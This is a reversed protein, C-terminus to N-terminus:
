TCCVTNINQSAQENILNLTETGDGNYYECSHNWNNTKIHFYIKQLAEEIIAEKEIIKEQAICLVRVEYLIDTSIAVIYFKFTWDNYNEKLENKLYWQVAKMYFCLQRLYDYKNISDEFTWINRTTKLDFITCIKNKFDFIVGDLLSKCYIKEKDCLQYEWNIHFEHYVSTVIDGNTNVTDGVPSLLSKAFKHSNINKNIKELMYVDYESIMTKDEDSKIFEIYDKLKSVIKLGESLMKDESKGVTSYFQKYASLVVKDPFIGPIYYKFARCFSEQRSSSPKNGTYLVYHKEFENPQLIYEHIMTGRDLTSNKEDIIRGDLRDRFYLPGYKLFWGIASNSIRTNDEYYPVKIEM